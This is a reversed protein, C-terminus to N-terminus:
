SVSVPLARRVFRFAAGYRQRAAVVLGVFLLAFTTPESIVAPAFITAGETHIWNEFSNFDGNMLGPFGINDILISSSNESTLRIALAVGSEGISNLLAADAIAIEFTSFDNQLTSSAVLTAVLTEDLSIQLQGDLSTFLYQFSLNVIVGIIFREIYSVTL